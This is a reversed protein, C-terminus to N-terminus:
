QALDIQAGLRLDPGAALVVGADLLAGETALRDATSQPATHRALAEGVLGEARVAAATRRDGTNHAYWWQGSLLRVLEHAVEAPPDDLGLGLVEAVPGSAGTTSLVHALLDVQDYAAFRRDLAAIAAHALPTGTEPSVFVPHRGAYALVDLLRGDEDGAATFGPVLACGYRGRGVGESEHVAAAQGPDLLTLLVSIETGPSPTVDANLYGQRSLSGAVVDLGTLTGALVPVVVAGPSEYGHHVLKLALTHPSRNAGYALVPVREALTPLGAGALLDDVPTGDDLAVTLRGGAGTWQADLPVVRGDVLLYHHDPATGPYTTPVQRPAPWDTAPRGSRLDDDPTVGRDEGVAATVTVTV